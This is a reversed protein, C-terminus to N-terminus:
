GDSFSPRVGMRIRVRAPTPLGLPRGVTGGETDRGARHLGSHGIKYRFSAVANVLSARRAGRSLALGSDSLRCIPATRIPGSKVFQSTAAVM